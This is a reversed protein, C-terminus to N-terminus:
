ASRYPPLLALLMSRVPPWSYRRDFFFFVSIGYSFVTAWAAGIAGMRPILLLNLGVNAVAGVITRVLVVHTTRAQSLLQAQSAINLFVFVSSWVYVRLIDGAGEYAAGYVVHTLWDGCVVMGLTFALASVYMLRYLLIAERQAKDADTKLAEIMSPFLVYAIIGPFFYAVEAFKVGASYRGLAESGLMHEIMVQDIRLYITTAFGSLMIPLGDRLLKGALRGDWGARIGGLHQRAMWGFVAIYLLTEVYSVAFFATLGLGALVIGGRLGLSSIALLVKASSSSGFDRKAQLGCDFILGGDLLLTGAAIAVLGPVLLNPEFHNAYTLLAAIALLGTLFRVRIVTGLVVGTEREGQVLERTIVNSMGFGALTGAFGMLAAVYNFVGFQAPGLYRAVIASTLVTCSFQVVWALIVIMIARANRGGM